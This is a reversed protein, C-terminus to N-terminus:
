HEQVPKNMVKEMDWGYRIRSDITKYNLGSLEQLEAISYMKGRYLHRDKRPKGRGIPDELMTMGLNEIPLTVKALLDKM